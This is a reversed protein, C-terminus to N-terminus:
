VLKWGDVQIRVLERLATVRLERNRRVFGLSVVYLEGVLHVLPGDHGSKLIELFLLALLLLM